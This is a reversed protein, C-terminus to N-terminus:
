QSTLHASGIRRFEQGPIPELYCTADSFSTYCFSEPQKTGVPEKEVHNIEPFIFEAIAGRISRTDHAVDDEINRFTRYDGEEIQKPPLAVAQDVRTAPAQPAAIPAPAVSVSAQNGADLNVTKEVPVEYIYKTYTVKPVEKSLRPFPTTLEVPPTPKPFPRVAADSTETINSGVPPEPPLEVVVIEENHTCSSITVM